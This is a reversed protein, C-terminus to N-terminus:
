SVARDGDAKSFTKKDLMGKKVLRYMIKKRFMGPLEGYVSYIEEYSVSGALYALVLVADPKSYARAGLCIRVLSEM